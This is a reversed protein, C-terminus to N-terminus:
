HMRDCLSAETEDKYWCYYLNLVLKWWATIHSSVFVKLFNWFNTNCSLNSVSREQSWSKMKWGWVVLSEPVGDSEELLADRESISCNAVSKAPVCTCPLVIQSLVVNLQVTNCCVDCVSLLQDPSTGSSMASTSLFVRTKLQTQLLYSILVSLKCLLLGLWKDFICNGHHLQLVTICGERKLIFLPLHFVSVLVQTALPNEEDPM